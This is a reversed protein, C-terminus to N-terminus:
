GPLAFDNGSTPGSRCLHLLDAETWAPNDIDDLWAPEMDVVRRVRRQEDPPHMVHQGGSPDCHQVRRNRAAHLTRLRPVQKDHCTTLRSGYFARRSSAIAASALLCIWTGCATGLSPMSLGSAGLPPVALVSASRRWSVMM